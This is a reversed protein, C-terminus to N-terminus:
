LNKDKIKNCIGYFTKTLPDLIADMHSQFTGDAKHAVPFVIEAKGTKREIDIFYGKAMGNENIYYRISYRDDLVTIRHASGERVAIQANYNIINKKEKESVNSPFYKFESTKYLEELDYIDVYDKNAVDDNFKCELTPLNSYKPNTKNSSFNKIGIKGVDFVGRLILAIAVILGLTALIKVLNNKM